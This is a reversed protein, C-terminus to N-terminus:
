AVPLTEILEVVKKLINLSDTSDLEKNLDVDAAAKANDDLTSSGLLFKNLAIVDMIDVAGDGNVDGYTINGSPADSPEESPTDSPADSPEESPVEAGGGLTLDFNVTIGESVTIEPDISTVKAWTNYINLRLHQGDDSTGAEAPTYEVEKGDVLISTINFKINGDTLGTAEKDEPDNKYDYIDINSELFLILDSAKTTGTKDVTISYSGTGTEPINDVYYIPDWFANGGYQGELAM